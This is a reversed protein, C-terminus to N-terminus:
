RGEEGCNLWRGPRKPPRYATMLDILAEPESHRLLLSRREDYIFGESQAYDIMELMRDFYGSANLVAVPKAHLGIQSWALMELLEELTGLGGPLAMFGDALSAMRAKRTHMSDVIHLTTLGSHVLEPTNFLEPVVGIAEGGADLISSALGGMM